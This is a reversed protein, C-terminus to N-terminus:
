RRRSGLVRAMGRAEPVGLALALGLYTAGFLALVVLMAVLSGPRALLQRGGLAVCSAAV